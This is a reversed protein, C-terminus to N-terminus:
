SDDLADLNADSASAGRRRARREPKEPKGPDAQESAEDATMARKLECPWVDDDAGQPQEIISEM